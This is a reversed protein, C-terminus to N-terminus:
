SSLGPGQSRMAERVLRAVENRYDRWQWSRATKKAECGMDALERRHESCWHLARALAAADRAPILLGNEGSRVFESGGARTTTIVPLGQSMAEAIVLAFGDALTPLVLIDASRYEKFLQPRPVTEHFTLIHKTDALLHTPLRQKGFIQVQLDLSASILNLAQLFYHAGKRVSFTGTWLIKLPTGTPDAAPRQGAFVEPFALPIVEVKSIDLGCAQHSDRTLNSNVIILDALDWEAARRRVQSQMLSASPSDGSSALAPNDAFEAHEVSQILPHLGRVGYIRYKGKKRAAEFTAKASGNYAYVGAYRDTRAAVHRDFRDLGEALLAETLRSGINARSLFTRPVEWWPFTHILGDPVGNIVRRGLQAAVHSGAVRDILAATRMLVGSGAVGFTTYYAGLLGIDHLARAPHRM